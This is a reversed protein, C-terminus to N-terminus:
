RKLRALDERVRAVHLANDPVHELWQLARELDAHASELDGRARACSARWRLQYAPQASSPPLFELSLPILSAYLAQAEECRGLRVLMAGETSRADIASVTRPGSLREFMEAAGRVADLAAERQGRQELLTGRNFTLTALSESPGSWRAGVWEIAEAYIADARELENSLKYALGLNGLLGILEQDDREPAARLAEVARSLYEVALTSQGLRLHASGIEGLVRAADHALPGREFRERWYDAAREARGTQMWLDARVARCYEASEAGDTGRSEYSAVLQDLVPEAAAFEGLQVLAHALFKRAEDTGNRDSSLEPHSAFWALARELVERARAPRGNQAYLKGLLVRLRAACWPQSEFHADVNREAHELVDFLSAPRDPSGGSASELSDTLFQMQESVGRAIELRELLARKEIEATRRVHAVWATPAAIAAVLSSALLTTWAPHRRANRIWIRAVSPARAAIPLGQAVAFLDRAFHLASAYRRSRECDLATLCVTELDVSIARNRARPRDPRGELIARRIELEGAGDFPVQLTLMEYLTVGLGYVDTRADQERRALLQEPAMYHLTGLTSGSRTQRADGQISSLGFDVLRARGDPTLMVNSPKVDRHLCGRSHAHELADALQRAIALAAHIWDLEYFTGQAADLAAGSALSVSRALDRGHLSEPARAALATLAQALTCGRVLEMAFYPVGHEEGFSHVPVIGPHSLRAVARAEREFRERAGPFFLHEPRILKLAVERGLSEQRARYVVGMGGGGLADLLTFEGLKQPIRASEGPEPDALGMDVLARWRRRLEDALAPHEACTRALLELPSADTAELCQALLEEPDQERALDNM